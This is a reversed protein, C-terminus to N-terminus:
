RAGTTEDYTGYGGQPFAMLRKHVASAISQAEDQLNTDTVVLHRRPLQLSALFNRHMDFINLQLRSCLLVGACEIEVRYDAEELHNTMQVGDYSNVATYLNKQFQTLRVGDRPAGGLFVTPFEYNSFHIKYAPASVAPMAIGGGHASTSPASASSVYDQSSSSGAYFDNANASDMIWVAGLVAMLPIVMLQLLWFRQNPRLVGVFRAVTQLITTMILLSWLASISYPYPYYVGTKPHEPACKM